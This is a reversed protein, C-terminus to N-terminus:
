VDLIVEAIWEPGDRRVFLGHRTVAKVESALLHRNRDIPEGAFDATLSKRDDQISVNFDRYLRHKTEARFLLESLWVALLDKLDEGAVEVRESEVARIAEPNAAVIGFLGEAAGRFLDSLDDARVRLGLDATHDFTEVRSM